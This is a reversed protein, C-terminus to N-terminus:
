IISANIWVAYYLTVLQHVKPPWNHNVAVGCLVIKAVIVKESVFLLLSKHQKSRGFRQIQIKERRVPDGRHPM